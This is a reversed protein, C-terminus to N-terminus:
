VYIGEAGRQLLGRSLGLGIGTSAGTIVAVKDKFFSNDQRKPHEM